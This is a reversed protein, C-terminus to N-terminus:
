IMAMYGISRKNDSKFLSESKIGEYLKKADFQHSSLRNQRVVTAFDGPTLNNFIALQQQWWKKRSIKENRESLVQQFMIWVQEPQLYDMKIKLDFRRISAEDLNDMLNTSCIFIGEFAEMQTLLENVQTVEWNHNARKRDRLFSDAEDLLLVANDAKAQEFMKAINMEAEGVYPSLIDSARKLLLKKDLQSAIYHGFATKGTGPPGYLCLRGQQHNKLGKILELIDTDANLVDPNYHISEKSIVNSIKQKGMCELTNNLVQTMNKEITIATTKKSVESTQHSILSIVEATQTILAPSIDSYQSLNELWDLSVPLRETSNKIIKLRTRQPPIDIKMILKFRRKFADDIQDVDNSIWITPVKNTELLRNIWAKKSSSNKSKTFMSFFSSPFVDEIEDFIILENLNNKLVYQALCYSSFREDGVIAEGEDNEMSVENLKFKMEQGIVRALETKGTGPSGYLLINIGEMPKKKFSSLLNLTLQIQDFLYDFNKLSLHSKKTPSFYCGFLTNIDTDPLLLIDDLGQMLDLRYQLNHARNRDIQILGSQLLTSDLNLTMKINKFPIDLLCSLIGYVDSLSLDGLEDTLNLFEVSNKLIIIFLLIQEEYQNLTIVKSIKKINDFLVYDVADYETSIKEFNQKIEQFLVKKSVILEDNEYLSSIGLFEIISDDVYPKILQRWLEFEILLKYSWYRAITDNAKNKLKLASSLPIKIM